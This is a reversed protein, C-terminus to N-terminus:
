FKSQKARQYPDNSKTQPSPMRYLVHCSEEKESTQTTRIPHGDRRQSLNAKACHSTICFSLPPLFISSNHRSVQATLHGEAEFVLAFM